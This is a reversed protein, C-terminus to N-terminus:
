RFCELAAKGRAIRDASCASGRRCGFPLAVALSITPTRNGSQVSVAVSFVGVISGLPQRWLGMFLGCWKVKWGETGDDEEDEGGDCARVTAARSQRAGRRIQRRRCVQPGGVPFRQRVASRRRASRKEGTLGEKM